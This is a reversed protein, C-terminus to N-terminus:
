ALCDPFHCGLSRASPHQDGCCLPLALVSRVDDGKEGKLVADINAAAALLEEHEAEDFNFAPNVYEDPDVEEEVGAKLNAQV